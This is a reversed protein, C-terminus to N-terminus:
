QGWARLEHRAVNQNLPDVCVEFDVPENDALSALYPEEYSAFNIVQDQGNYLVLTIVLYNELKDGTNLLSGSLCYDGAEQSQNLNAFAFNQRPASGGPQAEVALNIDAADQLGRVTLEFPVRTEPPITNIPWSADINDAGAIVQGQADYFTGGIFTIEQPSGTENTLDGYVLLSNDQGPLIRVNTFSWGPTGSSTTPNRSAAPLDTPIPPVTTPSSDSSEPLPAAASDAPTPLAGGALGNTPPPALSSDATATLTPLRTLVAVSESEPPSGIGLLGCALSGPALIIIAILLPFRPFYRAPKFHSLFGTRLLNVAHDHHQMM